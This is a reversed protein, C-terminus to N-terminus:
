TGPKEAVPGPVRPSYAERFHVPEQAPKKLRLNLREVFVSFAM